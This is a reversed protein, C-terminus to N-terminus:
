RVLFFKEIVWAAPDFETPLYAHSYNGLDKHHNNHLGEGIQYFQVWKHNYSNDTTDFNRYSGPLKIHSLTNTFINSNFQAIGVPVMIFFLAFKWSLLFSIAFISTWLISYNYHVFMVLKDKFLRAPKWPVNKVVAKKTQNKFPWLLASTWAGSATPSHFDRETDSVQHHFHHGESWRVPTGLGVLFSTWTLLVHQWRGTTFSGHCFYRHLGLQVGFFNLVKAYILGFILWYWLNYEYAVFFSFPVSLLCTVYMAMFLPKAIHFEIKQPLTKNM